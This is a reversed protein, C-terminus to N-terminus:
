IRVAVVPASRCHAVPNVLIVRLRYESDVALKAQIDATRGIDRVDFVARARAVQRAGERRGYLQHAM